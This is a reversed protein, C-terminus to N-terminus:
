SAKRGPDFSPSLNSGGAAEAHYDVASPRPWFYEPRSFGQALLEAGVIEGQDNRILSGDATHPSMVRGIGLILWSGFLSCVTMTALVLRVSCSIQDLLGTKKGAFNM